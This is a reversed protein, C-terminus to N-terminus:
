MITTYIIGGDNRLWAYKFSYPDKKTKSVKSLNVGELMQANAVEAFNLPPELRVAMPDAPPAQPEELIGIGAPMAGGVDQWNHAFVRAAGGDQNIEQRFARMGGDRQPAAPGRAVAPARRIVPPEPPRLEGRDGSGLRYTFPNFIEKYTEFPKGWVGKFWLVLDAYQDNTPKPDLAKLSLYLVGPSGPYPIDAASILEVDFKLATTIPKLAGILEDAERKTWPKAEM